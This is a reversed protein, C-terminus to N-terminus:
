ERNARVKAVAADYFLSKEGPRPRHEVTVSDFFGIRVGANLMRIFVDTEGTRNWNKRWANVSYRFFSLYSRYFFTSHGGLRPNGIGRRQTGSLRTWPGFALNGQNNMQQGAREESVASSVFEFGGRLGYELLDELHTPTWVAHDDIRAIWKGTARALALNTAHVYGVLWHNLCYRDSTDVPYHQRKKPINFFQIRPDNFKNVLAETNDTCHDGIVIYEFNKYTQSLVSPIAREGLIEGRNYTTTYVSILPEDAISRYYREGNIRSLTLLTPETLGCLFLRAKTIANDRFKPTFHIYDRM